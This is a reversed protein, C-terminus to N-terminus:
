NDVVDGLEVVRTYYLITYYYPTHHVVTTKSRRYDMFEFNYKTKTDSIIFRITTDQQYCDEIPSSSMSFCHTVQPEPLHTERSGDLM